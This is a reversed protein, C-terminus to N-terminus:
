GKNQTTDSRSNQYAVAAAAMVRRVPVDHRRAAELCDEFEPSATIEQGDLFGVKIRITGYLTEITKHTRPLISRQCLRRRIGFTSTERFLLREMATQRDPPCIVTLCAAPRNKKMYISTSYVDLAGQELMKGMVYGIQQAPMDDLSTELICVEDCLADATSTEKQEGVLLRLVNPLGPIDRQGAGYGISEIRLAPLPGFGSSLTTLVAAGTPTLLEGAAPSSALEIGQILEATAPAPVPLLGHECQITGSGVALASCLVKEIGLSELAICAGVVDLIADTAGVEHFHVQNIDIDHVKAEARALNQFIQVANNKVAASLGAATIIKLIDSLPRHHAHGKHIEVPRFSTASIGKKNVKEIHIEVAPLGLKALEERLHGPSVGADLCAGVIMDGAAGSFCDFYAIKM